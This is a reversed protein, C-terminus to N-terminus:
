ENKNIYIHILIYSYEQIKNLQKNPVNKEMKNINMQSFQLPTPFQNQHSASCPPTYSASKRREKKKDCFIFKRLNQAFCFLRTYVCYM